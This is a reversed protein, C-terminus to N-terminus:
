RAGAEAPVNLTKCEFYANLGEPGDERGIGSAKYGGFPMGSAIRFDNVTITGTRIQEAVAIGHEVDGTFVSGCLGYDSDNAIRIADAEDEYPIIAVVPGFIEERAIRMSNDVETFVTPEIFWGRPLHAPRGGGIAVKAGQERGSAIYGEVRSRQRAAVLPGIETAPDHPDGVTMKSVADCYRDAVEQYRGAPALVRTIAACIQGSNQMAGFVMRPIDRDLDADELVVAASKGGLELTVRKVQAGCIAGIRRGAATSGTFTIKDVGPHSVLHEGVERGGPVISVVGEPLGAQLVAEAVAYGDLPTEPAPKVIVSSGTLTAPLLKSLVLGLPANWPIIAGVVGVPEKIILSPGTPGQRLERQTVSRALEIWREILYRTVYHSMPTTWSIPAGMEDTQLLALEDARPGLADVLRLAIEAREDFSLHRWPGDDFAKRAAAVARDMDAPEADPLWGIVEETTPSMVEAVGTGAPAAWRGGIFLQDFGHM